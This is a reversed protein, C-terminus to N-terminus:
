HGQFFLSGKQPFINKPAAVFFLFFPAVSRMWVVLPIGSVQGGLLQTVKRRPRRAADGRDLALLRERALVSSFAGAFSLFRRLFM